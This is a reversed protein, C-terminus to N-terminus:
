GNFHENLYTITTLIFIILRNIKELCKGRQAKFFSTSLPFVSIEIGLHTQHGLHSFWSPCREKWSLFLAIRLVCSLYASRLYKGIARTRSKMKVLSPIMRWKQVYFEGMRAPLMRVHWIWAHSAHYPLTLLSGKWGTKKWHILKPGLRASPARLYKSM